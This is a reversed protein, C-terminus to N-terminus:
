IIPCLIFPHIHVVKGKYTITEIATVVPIEPNTSTIKYSYQWDGETKSQYNELLRTKDKLEVIRKKLHENIQKKTIGLKELYESKPTGGAYLRTYKDEGVKVLEQGGGLYSETFWEDHYIQDTQAEFHSSEGSFIGRKIKQYNNGGYGKILGESLLSKIQLKM